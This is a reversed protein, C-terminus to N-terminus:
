HWATGSRGRIRWAAVREFADDELREVVTDEAAGLEPTQLLEAVAETRLLDVAKQAFPQTQKRM